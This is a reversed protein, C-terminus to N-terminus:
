NIKSYPLGLSEALHEHHVKGHAINVGTKLAPNIEIAKEWGHKALQIIFPLTANTLALTSTCPVAGPMNSVCYHLIGDIVFTPNDHTTPSCTEICGGQDVAVDIVVSGPSMLKLMERSVLIPTKAGPILVAGIVLDASTLSEKINTYNSYVTNVNKPLFDDLQRLRDLNVDFVTVNAGLGSAMKAAQIGVVGAGLIVVNAPPVGPVGGLLIGKGGMTKELYKAGEQISMRGAIESMPTLLPLSRDEKTVTEYAICVAGREIMAQTLELSSAFHFYTFITHKSSVLKYEHPLPEKVKIILEAKEYIEEINQLIIGGHELYASDSYGSGLGAEHQIFVEHGLRTLEYVGAPTMSVRFENSKIEKPIGIKM